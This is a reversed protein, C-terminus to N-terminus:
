GLLTKLDGIREAAPVGRSCAASCAGCSRCASLGAGAPIADLTRRAQGFNSYCSAYLHTRMLAPVDVGAPCATSCAGCQVCVGLSLKVNRDQLFKKEEESYELNRGSALDEDLQQFTTIGPVATTIFPHRLVWKLVAQHMMNGDYFRQRDNPVMGRYWYQTCQTKMAILGVGKAAASKLVSELVSDDSLAYNYSTLIVDYFGDAAAADICAAMNSHTSFGAFRIKGAKKLSRLGEMLGEHRVDDVSSVDHVYVIDVYDSRLRGLSEEVRRIMADRGSTQTLGNRMFPVMEKTAIVVRDRNKMDSVVKGIMTENAGDGYAFATDLHRIGSELARRVLDPNGSNMVGMGVVPLTVGTKGLKRATLNGTANGAAPGNKDMAPLSAQPPAAPRNEAADARRAAFGAMGIAALGAAARTVFGRRDLRTGEGERVDTQRKM